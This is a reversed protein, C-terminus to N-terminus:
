VAEEEERRLAERWEREELGGRDKLPSFICPSGSNGGLLLTM